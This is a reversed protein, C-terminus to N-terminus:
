PGGNDGSLRNGIFERTEKISKAEVVKADKINMGKYSVIKIVPAVAEVEYDRRYVSNRFAAMKFYTDVILKSRSKGALNPKRVSVGTKPNVEEWWDREDSVAEEVARGVFIDASDKVAEYFRETFAEEYWKSKATRWSLLVHVPVGVKRCAAEFSQCNLVEACILKGIEETYEVRPKAM